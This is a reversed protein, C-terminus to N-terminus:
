GGCGTSAKMSFMDAGAGQSYRDNFVLWYNINSTGVGTVSWGSALNTIETYVYWITNYNYIEAQTMFRSSGLTGVSLMDTSFPQSPPRWGTLYGGNPGTTWGTNFHFGKINNKILQKSNLAQGELYIKRVGGAPDGVQIYPCSADDIHSVDTCACFQGAAPKAAPDCETDALTAGTSSTCVPAGTVGGSSPGGCSTVSCAGASWTGTYSATCSPGQKMFFELATQWYRDNIILLYNITTNMNGGGFAQWGRTQLTGTEGTPTPSVMWITNYTDLEAQGLMRTPANLISIARNPDFGVGGGNPGATWGPIFHFGQVNNKIIQKYNLADGELYIKRMSGSQDSIKIYPCSDDIHTVDTCAVTPPASDTFGPAGGSLTGNNCTLTTSECTTPNYAKATNGTALTVGWPLTCSNYGAPVCSQGSAPKTAPNCEADVLATGTANRCVPAGITSPMGNIPLSCAGTTWTGNYTATCSPGAQMHFAVNKQSYRDNFNLWYNSGYYNGIGTISWGSALNLDTYVYDITTHAYIEDQTMFRSSGQSNVYLMDTNFPANYPPYPRAGSLAGGNPGVTWGTNFHFGNINNQILQKSNLAAGTIYIRRVTGSADGVKIYPCADNIHSADACGTAPPTAQTYGTVSGLLTGANCSLTASDCQTPSYAKVSSGSTLKAGWPLTCDNCSSPVCSQGPTPKLAPDCETDALTAGATSKCVPAGSTGPTTCSTSSCAGASWTGTYNTTCSVPSGTKLALTGNNCVVTMAGQASGTADTALATATNDITPALAATCPGGAGRSIVGAATWSIDGGNCSTLGCTPTTGTAVVVTGNVCRATAAGVPTTTTLAQDTATNFPGTNSTASTLKTTTASCKNSGTGWSLTQGDRCDCNGTASLTPTPVTGKLTCSITATGTNQPTNISKTITQGLPLPSSADIIASCNGGWSVTGSCDTLNSASYVLVDDFYNSGSTATTIGPTGKNFPLNYVAGSTTSCNVIANGGPASCGAIAGHSVIAYAAVASTTTTKDPHIAIVGKGSNAKYNAATTLQTSVMYRFDSDKGNKFQDTRYSAAMGVTTYPFNGILVGDATVNTIGPATATTVATGQVNISAPNTSAPMPYYGNKKAFRDLGAQMDALQARTKTYADNSQGISSNQLAIGSMLGVAALGIAMELLTFGKRSRLSRIFRCRTFYRM